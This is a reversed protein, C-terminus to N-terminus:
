KVGVRIRYCVVIRTTRAGIVREATECLGAFTEHVEPAADRFISRPGGLSEALGVIRCGDAEDFGHCVIERAFRFRGSDRIRQVHREKPWSEAGADLGLRKRAARRAAFHAMFAADVEPHIVPPVDYDYAAFVGGPRLLRAAEALVPEPEMWHFAQSCTVLDAAGEGLGTDAAYGQVYDVNPEGTAIRARERMHPNAEVGIVQDARHAWARSSLGTGAGLDIVLRPREVQAVLSLIDLLEPPPAPRSRDYLDAFADSDYGSREILTRSFESM